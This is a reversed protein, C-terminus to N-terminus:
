KIYAAKTTTTLLIKRFYVWDDQVIIESFIDNSIKTEKEDELNIRYIGDPKIHYYFSYINNGGNSEASTSTEFSIPTTAAPELTGEKATSAGGDPEVRCGAALAFLVATAAVAAMARKM